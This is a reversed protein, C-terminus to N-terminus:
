ENESEKDEKVWQGEENRIYRKTIDEVTTDSIRSIDDSSVCRFARNCCKDILAIGHVPCNWNIRYDIVTALSAQNCCANPVTLGHIPCQWLSM